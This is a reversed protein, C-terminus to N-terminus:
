ELAEWLKEFQRAFAKVFRRDGTIVFNDENDHAASRTWNYSGTLLISGDALAFKHHMHAASRDARVTVGAEALRDVDSGRDAAKDDDTVLCIIFASRHIIFPLARIGDQGNM